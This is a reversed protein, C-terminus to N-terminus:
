LLDHNWINENEGRVKPFTELKVLIKWVPQVGWSSWRESGSIRWGGPGSLNVRFRGRSVASHWLSMLVQFHMYNHSRDWYCVKSTWFRINNQSIKPSAFSNSAILQTKEGVFCGPERLVSMTTIKDQLYCNTKSSKGHFLNHRPSKCLIQVLFFKLTQKVCAASFLSFIHCNLNIYLHTLQHVMFWSRM